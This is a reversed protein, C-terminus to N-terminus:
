AQKRLARRQARNMAPRPAATASRPHKKFWVPWDIPKPSILEGVTDEPFRALIRQTTENERVTTLLAFGGVAHFWKRTELPPCVKLRQLHFMHLLDVADLEPIPRFPFGSDRMEEFSVDPAGCLEDLELKTFSPAAMNSAAFAPEREFASKEPAMRILYGEAASRANSWGVVVMETEPQGTSLCRAEHREYFARAFSELSGALQDFSEFNPEIEHAALIALNEPGRTHVAANIRPVLAM